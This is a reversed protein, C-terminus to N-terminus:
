LIGFIVVSIVPNLSFKPVRSSPRPNLGSAPGSRLTKFYSSLSTVTKARRVALGERKEPSCTFQRATGDGAPSKLKTDEILVKTSFLLTHQKWVLDPFQFYVKVIFCSSSSFVLLIVLFLLPTQLIYELLLFFILLVKLVEFVLDVAEVLLDLARLGVLFFRYSKPEARVVEATTNQHM